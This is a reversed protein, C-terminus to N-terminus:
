DARSAPREGSARYQARAGTVELRAQQVHEDHDTTQKSDSM